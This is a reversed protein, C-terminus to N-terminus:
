MEEMPSFAPLFLVNPGNTLLVYLSHLTFNVSLIYQIESYSLFGEGFAELLTTLKM